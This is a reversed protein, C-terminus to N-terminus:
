YEKTLETVGYMDRFAQLDEENRILMCETFQGTHVNKFGAVKEGNCISCHLVPIENNKDYTMHETKRHRSFM